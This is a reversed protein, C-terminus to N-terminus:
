EDFNLKHYTSKNILFIYLPLRSRFNIYLIPILKINIGVLYVINLETNVVFLTHVFNMKANLKTRLIYENWQALFTIPFFGSKNQHM